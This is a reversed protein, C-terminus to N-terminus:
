PASHLVLASIRPGAGADAVLYTVELRTIESGDARLRAFEGRHLVCSRNLVTTEASLEESRDYATSRMGTLQQEAFALVQPEDTLITTGADTSVLLPVAYHALLQRVDDRDGRGLAAFDALYHGLWRRADWEDM